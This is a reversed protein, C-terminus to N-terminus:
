MIIDREGFIHPLEPDINKKWFRCGLLGCYLCDTAFCILSHILGMERIAQISLVLTLFYVVNSARYMSIPKERWPFHRSDNFRFPVDHWKLPFTYWVPVRFGIKYCPDTFKFTVNWSDHWYPTFIRSCTHHKKESTPWGSFWLCM